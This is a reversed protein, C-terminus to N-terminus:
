ARIIATAGAFFIQSTRLGHMRRTPKPVLGQRSTRVLRCPDSPSRQWALNFRARVDTANVTLAKEYASRAEETRGWEFLADGLANWLEASCTPNLALATKAM